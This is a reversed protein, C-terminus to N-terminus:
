KEALLKKVKEALGERANLDRLAGNKDVLWMTPISAIGFQEGLKKGEEGEDYCQPWTM